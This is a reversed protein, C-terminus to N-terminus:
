RWEDYSWRRMLPEELLGSGSTGKIQALSSPFRGVAVNLINVAGNVDANVSRHSEECVMLGRYKRGNHRKGCLCCTRSTDRESVKRVAIGMEEGLEKLRREIIGFTWFNHLKQNGNRGHNENERIGTLDGIALVGVGSEDLRKFIDRCMSYLAHRLRRMRCRYLLDILKSSHRRKPLKSQLEAIRKTRYVWDSLVARGSYVTPKEDEVYLAALNCIGIDLAAMKTAERSPPTEAEVPIYAYWKGLLKDRRIELRGRRGAWIKGHQFPIKTKGISLIEGKLSWGDNRVYFANAIRVGKEKLYRPPSLKRIHPPLKGQKRLRVLSFFSQWAENLKALLAQAKCTGLEKFSENTKFEKCQSAYTPTKDHERWAM